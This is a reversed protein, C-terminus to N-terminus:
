PDPPAPLGPVGGPAAPVPPVPDLWQLLHMLELSTFGTVAARRFELRDPAAQVLETVSDGLWPTVAAMWTDGPLRVGIQPATPLTRPDRDLLLSLQRLQRLHDLRSILNTVPQGEPQEPPMVARTGTTEWAYWLLNTRGQVQALLEAPPVGATGPLPLLGAVLFAGDKLARAEAYPAVWPLGRLEVTPGTNTVTLGGAVQRLPVRELLKPLLDPGTAAIAAAPDPLTGAAYSLWPLGPSSWTFVQEPAAPLPLGFGRLWARVWEGAGRAASFSQIPDRLLEVPLTWAGAPPTLPRDLQLDAAVALSCPRPTVRLAVRAPWPGFPFADALGLQEALARGRGEVSLLVGEPLPQDWAAALSRPLGAAPALFVNGNTATMRGGEGVVAQWRGALASDGALAVSLRPRGAEEDWQVLGGRQILEAALPELENAPVGLAPAALGALRAALLRGLRRTEDHTWVDRLPGPELVTLAARTGAFRVRLLPQDGAAASSERGCGAALMLAASLGAVFLFRM